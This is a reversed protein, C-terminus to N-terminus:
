REPSKLVSYDNPELVRLGTLHALHRALAGDESPHLHEVILIPAAFDGPLQRFISELAEIGRASGGIVVFAGSM